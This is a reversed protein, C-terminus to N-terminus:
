CTLILDVRDTAVAKGNSFPQCDVGDLGCGNLSLWYTSTCGIFSDPPTLYSQARSFFAMGIIYAVTLLAFLWPSTLYRTRRSFTAEIPVFLRSGRFHYDINLLPKPDPFCFTQRSIATVLKKRYQAGPLNIPPRPGRIYSVLRNVLVYTKPSHSALKQHLSAFWDHPQHPVSNEPDQVPGFVYSGEKSEDPTDHSSGESREM